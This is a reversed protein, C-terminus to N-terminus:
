KTKGQYKIALLEPNYHGRRHSCNERPCLECNSYGEESAFRIGSVTQNPIMLMSDTLAVGIEGAQDNLLKFLDKQSSIPWDELSGPNMSATRGLQFTAKLYKLLYKEAKKLALSNIADAYYVEVMDNLSSKWDYLERGCTVLYPFARNVTKLNVALIRSELRLGDLVVGSDDLSDIGALKYLAKPRGIQRAHEVMKDILAAQSSGERVRMKKKVKAASPKFKIETFIELSM